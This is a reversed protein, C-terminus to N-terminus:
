LLARVLGAVLAAREPMSELVVHETRAHAGDGVAGLGDLTPVGIGATFNGDSGGGVAQGRLPAMGLEGAIKTALAFLEASSEADLPPRNLGGSVTFSTGAITPQLARIAADVRELEAPTEGRLDIQATAHDPVVNRATGASATTPTVTTGRAMDALGAIAGLADALALLANAGNEPELGAHAARGTVAFDYFGVGKRATKLAGDVPPELVLAARAGRATEEVLARSSLSGIEEDSNVLLTVGDLDDLTALAHLGLVLGAKMDFCGPGRAVGDTVDFPLEALSGLPWVTDMHGIVVVRTPSSGFRWRLHTSGDVVIREPAYAPLVSAAVETLADACRACADKDSSPSETTVLRQPAAAWDAARAASNV